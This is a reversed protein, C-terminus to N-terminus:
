LFTRKQRVTKKIGAAGGDATMSCREQPGSGSGAISIVPLVKRQSRERRRLAMMPTHMQHGLESEFRPGGADKYKPRPNRREVAPAIPGYQPGGYIGPPCSEAGHQRSICPLLIGSAPTLCRRSSPLVPTSGTGKRQALPRADEHAVQGYQRLAVAAGAAREIM